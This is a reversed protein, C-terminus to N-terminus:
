EPPISQFQINLKWRRNESHSRKIDDDESHLLEKICILYNDIDPQYVIRGESDNSTLELDGSDDSHQLQKDENYYGIYGNNIRTIVIQQAFIIDM